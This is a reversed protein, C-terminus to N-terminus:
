TPADRHDCLRATGACALPKRVSPRGDVSVPKQSPQHADVGFRWIQKTELGAYLRKFRM